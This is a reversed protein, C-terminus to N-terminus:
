LGILPLLSTLACHLSVGASQMAIEVAEADREAGAGSTKVEKDFDGKQVARRHHRLASESRARLHNHHNFVAEAVIESASSIVKGRRASSGGGRVDGDVGGRGDRCWREGDVVKEGRM